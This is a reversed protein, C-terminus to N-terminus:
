LLREAPSPSQRIYVPLSGEQRGDIALDISYRGFKEFRLQQFNLLLNAVASEVGEEPRIDVTTEFAPVVHRGDEDVMDLKVRHAGSEIRKFRIRIAVACSPHILPLSSASMVDFAGLLNLKGGGETAADCLAFVEIKM